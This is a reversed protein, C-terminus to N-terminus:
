NSANPPGADVKGNESKSNVDNWSKANPESKNMEHANPGNEQRLLM